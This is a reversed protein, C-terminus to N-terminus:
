ANGPVDSHQSELPNLDSNQLPPIPRPPAQYRTGPPLNGRPYTGNGGHHTYGPNHNSQGRGRGWGRGRYGYGRHTNTSSSGQTRWNDSNLDQQSDRPNPGWSSSSSAPHHSRWGHSGSQGSHGRSSFYGRGGRDQSSTSVLPLPDPSHIYPSARIAALVNELEERTYDPNEKPIIRYVRNFGESADIPVFQYSFRSLVIHLTLLSTPNSEPLTGEIAKEPTELTPHDKREILRAHCTDFPTDMTIGWIEVGSHQRAIDIWTRRQSNHVARRRYLYLVSIINWSSEGRTSIRETWVFPYVRHYLTIFKENSTEADESNTKTVDVFRPSNANSLAPSHQSSPTFTM